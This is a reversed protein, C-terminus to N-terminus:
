VYIHAVHSGPLLEWGSKTFCQVVTRPAWILFCNGLIHCPHCLSAFLLCFHGIGLVSRCHSSWLPMHVEFISLLWSPTWTRFICARLKIFMNGLVPKTFFDAGMEKPPHHRAFLDKKTNCNTTCIRWVNPLTMQISRKVRTGRQHPWALFTRVYSPRRSPASRPCSFINQGPFHHCFTMLLSSPEISSAVQPSPSSPMVIMGHNISKTGNQRIMCEPPGAKLSPQAFVWEIAIFNTIADHKDVQSSSSVTILKGPM